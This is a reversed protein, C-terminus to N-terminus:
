SGSNLAWAPVDQHSLEHGTAYTCTLGDLLKVLDVIRGAEVFKAAQRPARRLAQRIPLIQGQQLLTELRGRIQDETGMLSYETSTSAVREANWPSDEPERASPIPPVQLVDGHVLAEVTQAAPGSAQKDGDARSIAVTGSGDWRFQVLQGTDAELRPSVYAAVDDVTIFGDGDRDAATGASLADVFHRTFASLETESPADSSLMGTRSSSIVWRGRGALAEGPDGGKFNGSYCCDLVIVVAAAKTAEALRALEDGSIASSVLKDSRTNNACLYLRGYLDLKGHGSFYLLVQDGPAASQFLDEAASLIEDRPADMMTQVNVTDHLGCAADTLAAAVAEADRAPELLAQLTHPDEPYESCGVVLARYIRSSM